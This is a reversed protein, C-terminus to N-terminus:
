GLEQVGAEEEGGPLDSIRWGAMPGAEEIEDTWAKSLEAFASMERDFQNLWDNLQQVNVGKTKEAKVVLAYANRLAGNVEGLAVTYDRNMGDLAAKAIQERTPPQQYRLQQELENIKTDKRAIAKEQIERDHKRADETEKIKAEFERCKERVKTAPLSEWKDITMGRVEEGDNLKELESDTFEDLLEFKSNNLNGFNPFKSYREAIHMYQYAKGRKIGIQELAKLFSGHDEHERIAILLAGGVLGSKEHLEFANRAAHIYSLASYDEGLVTNADLLKKAISLNEASKQVVLDMAQAEPAIVNKKRSM